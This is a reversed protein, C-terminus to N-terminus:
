SKRSIIFVNLYNQTSGASIIEKELPVFQQQGRGDSEFCLLRRFGRPTRMHAICVEAKRRNSSIHVLVSIYFIFPINSAMKTLIKKSQGERFYFFKKKWRSNSKEFIREFSSRGIKNFIINVCNEFYLPERCMDLPYVNWLISQLKIFM